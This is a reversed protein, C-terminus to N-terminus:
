IWNAEGALHYEIGAAEFPDRHANWLGTNDLIYRCKKMNRVLATAPVKYEDHDVVLVVMDFDNLGRPFKLTGVGLIKRIESETFYPDFVKVDVGKKVLEAVFPITPSLISVKLNGKYSLGLVAVKRAGRRAISRAILLNIETDTKITEKLISLKEPREAGDLVYKSSVPICYGGTGFGPRFTGINWKTGVM